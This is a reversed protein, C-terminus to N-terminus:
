DHMIKKPTTISRFYGYNKYDQFLMQYFIKVMILSPIALLMGLIGGIVAGTIVILFILVPHSDISRSFIFPQFFINDALQLSGFVIVIKLLIFTYDSYTQLDPNTSFEIFIGILSGILPGLFPIINALAAFIAILLGHQSGIILFGLWCLSFICLMQIFVGLLYNSLLVEVKILATIVIEFYYNPILYVLASQFLNEEYLLFFTIFSVTLTGTLLSGTFSLIKNLLSINLIQYFNKSLEELYDFLFGKKKNIPLYDLLFNEVYGIPKKIDQIVMNFDISSIFTIEDKILPSLLGIFAWIILGIGMFVLSTSLWVPLQRGFFILRNLYNIPIRLITSITLAIILYIFIESFFYIGTGLLSFLILTNILFSRRM